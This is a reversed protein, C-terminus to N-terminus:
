SWKYDSSSWRFGEVERRLVPDAFASCSDLLGQFSEPTTAVLNQKRRWATWKRQAGDAIDDLVEALPALEVQRSAAVIALSRMMDDGGIDVKAALLAVDVFDRWRTNAAGREVATVIKEALVMTVPYALVDIEGGLLRPLGTRVPAPWVPDGFNVDVHFSIKASALHINPSKPAPYDHTM